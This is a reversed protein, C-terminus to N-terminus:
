SDVIYYDGSLSLPDIVPVLYGLLDLHCPPFRKGGPECWLLLHQPPVVRGRGDLMLNSIGDITDHAGVTM